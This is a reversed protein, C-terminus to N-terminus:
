GDRLLGRGAEFNSVLLKGRPSVFAAHEHCQQKPGPHNALEVADWAQDVEDRLGLELAPEEEGGLRDLL